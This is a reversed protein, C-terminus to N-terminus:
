RDRIFEEISESLFLSDCIIAALFQAPFSACRIDVRPVGVGTFEIHSFKDTWAKMLPFQDVAWDRVTKTFEISGAVGQGKQGRRTLPIGLKEAVTISEPFYKSGIKVLWGTVIDARSNPFLVDLGKFFVRLTEEESSNFGLSISREYKERFTFYASKSSSGEALYYGLMLCLIPSLPLEVPVAFRRGNPKQIWLLNGREMTPEVIEVQEACIEYQNRKGGPTV